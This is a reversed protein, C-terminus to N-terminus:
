PGGSDRKRHFHRFGIRTSIEESGGGGDRQSAGVLDHITNLAESPTMEYLKRALEASETDGRRGQIRSIDTVNFELDNRGPIHAIHLLKDIEERRWELSGFGGTPPVGLDLHIEASERAAEIMKQIQGDLERDEKTRVALSMLFRSNEISAVPIAAPRLFMETRHVEHDQFITHQLAFMDYLRRETRARWEKRAAESNQADKDPRSECFLLLYIDGWGEGLLAADGAEFFYGSSEIGLMPLDGYRRALEFACTLQSPHVTAEPAVLRWSKDFLEGIKKEQEATLNSRPTRLMFDLQSSGNIKTNEFKPEGLTAVLERAVSRRYAGNGFPSRPVDISRSPYDANEVGGILDDRLLSAVEQRDIFSSYSLWSRRAARLRQLFGLRTSRRDLRISLICLLDRHKWDGAHDLPTMEPKTVDIPPGSISTALALERREFFSRTRREQKLRSFPRKPDTYIEQARQSAVKDMMPQRLQAEVASTTFSFYDYRGLTAFRRVGDQGHGACERYFTANEHDVKSSEMGSNDRWWHADILSQRSLFLSTFRRLGPDPHSLARFFDRTGKHSPIQSEKSPKASQTRDAHRDVLAMLPAVISSRESLPRLLDGLQELKLGALTAVRRNYLNDDLKRTPRPATEAQLKRAEEPKRDLRERAIVLALPHIDAIRRMRTELLHQTASAVTLCDSLFACDGSTGDGGRFTREVYDSVIKFVGGDSKPKGASSLIDAIQPTRRRMDFPFVIWPYSRDLKLIQLSGLNSAAGLQDEDIELEDLLLKSQPAIAAIEIFRICQVLHDNLRRCESNDFFKEIPRPDNRNPDGLDAHVDASRFPISRWKNLASHRILKEHLGAPDNGFEPLLAGQESLAQELKSLWRPARGEHDKLLRRWTQLLLEIDEGDMQGKDAQQRAEDFRKAERAIELEAYDADLAVGLWGSIAERFAENASVRMDAGGGDARVTEAIMKLKEGLGSFADTEKYRDALVKLHNAAGGDHDDDKVWPDIVDGLIRALKDTSSSSGWRWRFEDEMPVDILKMLLRSAEALAVVTHRSRFSWIEVALQLLERGPAYDASLGEMVCPARKTPHPDEVCIAAFEMARMVSCQWPLDGLRTLINMRGCMKEILSRQERHLQLRLAEEDKANGAEKIQRDLRGTLLDLEQRDNALEVNVDTGGVYLAHFVCLADAAVRPNEGILDAFPKVPQAKADPEPNAAVENESLHAEIANAHRLGVELFDGDVKEEFLKRYAPDELFRRAARQRTASKRQALFEVLRVRDEEAFHGYRLPEDRIDRALRNNEASLRELVDPTESVKMAKDRFGKLEDVFHSAKLVGILQDTFEAWKGIEGSSRRKRELSRLREFLSDLCKDVGEIMAQTLPTKEKENLIAQVVFVIIKLRVYWYNSVRSEGLGSDLLNEVEGLDVWSRWGPNRLHGSLEVGTTEQFLAFLYGPGTVTAALIDTIIERMEDQLDHLKLDESRMDEAVRFLARWIKAFPGSKAVSANSLSMDGFLEVLVCHAAEHAIVPQLDPRDPMWFSTNVAFTSFAPRTDSAESQDGIRSRLIATRPFSILEANESSYAHKWRHVFTPLGDFVSDGEVGMLTRVLSSVEIYLDRAREGLMHHYIGQERRRGTIPRHNEQSGIDLTKEFLAHFDALREVHLSMNRLAISRVLLFDARRQADPDGVHKPLKPTLEPVGFARLGYWALYLKESVINRKLAQLSIFGSYTMNFSDDWLGSLQRRRLTRAIPATVNRWAFSVALRDQFEPFVRERFTESLDGMTMQYRSEDDVTPLVPVFAEALRPISEPTIRLQDDTFMESWGLQETPSSERPESRAEVGGFVFSEEYRLVAHLDSFRMAYIQNTQLHRIESIITDLREIADAFLQMAM